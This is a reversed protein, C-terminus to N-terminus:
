TRASRSRSAWSLPNALCPSSVRTHTRSLSQATHFCDLVVCFRWMAELSPTLTAALLPMRTVASSRMRTVASSPTPTAALIIADADGGIIANADGGIIANADGGIIASPRKAKSTTVSDATGAHVAAATLALSVALAVAGVGGKTVMTM